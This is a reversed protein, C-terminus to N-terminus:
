RGSNGSAVGGGGGAEDPDDPDSPVRCARELLLGGAMVGVSVLAAVLSHTVRERPLAANLVDTFSLAYGLYAGAVAAGVLGSSKGLVLLNVARHPDIRERRQHITRYTARALALLVIAFVALTLPAAWSVAPAVGGGREILPRVVGGGALGVLAIVALASAATPRLQRDSVAADNESAWTSTKM